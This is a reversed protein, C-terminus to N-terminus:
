SRWKWRPKTRWISGMNPMSPYDLWNEIRAADLAADIEEPTWPLVEFRRPFFPHEGPRRRNRVEM